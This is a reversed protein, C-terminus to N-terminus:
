LFFIINKKLNCVYNDLASVQFFGNYEKIHLLAYQQLKITNYISIFNEKKEYYESESQLFYLINNLSNYKNM